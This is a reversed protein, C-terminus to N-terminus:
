DQDYSRVTAEIGHAALTAVIAQEMAVIIGVGIPQPIREATDIEFVCVVNTKM